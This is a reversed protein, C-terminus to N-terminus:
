YLKIHDNSSYVEFVEPPPPASPLTYDSNFNETAMGFTKFLSDRGTYVWSNKYEHCDSTTSGNPLQFPSSDTVWNAGVEYVKERSLGAVAEALVLHISEGPELTYPGFGQVNSFGGASGFADVYGNGVADAFRTDPHGANMFQYEGTMQTANFQSNGSNYLHDSDVYKTTKPQFPDDEKDSASKDAHLTVVGLYQAAGLHGDGLYNPGGINDGPGAWSSHKGLWSFVTRYLDGSDPNEGRTDLMTSAGWGASQPLWYGDGVGYPGCERTPAYRYQFFFYVDKLTKSQEIDVDADVNGTNTFVYDYIFYNDNEQHTWASITRQMTVGISTNVKNYIQRDCNLESNIEDLEELEALTSASQSNVLVMPHDYKGILKFEVPMFENDIDAVRPGMHVVKHSYTNGGYQTADTYNTTGIWLGKAVQTDQWEYQAPWRLGDQQDSVQFTRGVEIEAGADSYWSQLSGVLIERIDGAFLPGTFLQICILSLLVSKM